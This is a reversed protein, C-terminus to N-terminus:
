GLAKVSVHVKAFVAQNSGVFNLWDCDAVYSDPGIREIQEWFLTILDKM